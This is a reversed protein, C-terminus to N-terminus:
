PWPAAPAQRLCVVVEAAFVALFWAPWRAPATRLFWALAMGGPLWFIASKQPPFVFDYSIEALAFYAVFLAACGLLLKLAQETESSLGSRWRRLNSAIM